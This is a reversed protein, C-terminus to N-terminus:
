ADMNPMNLDLIALEFPDSSNAADNLMKLAEKGSEACTVNLDWQELQLGLIERNTETDDVVLVKKGLKLLRM